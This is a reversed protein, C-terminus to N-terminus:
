WYFGAFLNSTGTTLAAGVTQPAAAGINNLNLSLGLAGGVSFHDVFFYEVGFAGGLGFFETKSAGERGFTLSPQVFTHLRGTRMLYARYGLGVSFSAAAGSGNPESFVFNFGLDLRLAAEPGIFYTIGVTPTGSSPLSFELAKTGQTFVPGEETATPPPSVPAPPPPLPLAAPAALSSAATCLALLVCCLSLRKM